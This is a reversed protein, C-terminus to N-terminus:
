PIMGFSWFITFSPSTGALTWKARWFNDTVGGGITTEQWDSGRVTRSPHTLRTTPTTFGSNDDSEIVGVITPTGATVPSLVHLASYIWKNAASGMNIGTSNGTVTVTGRRMLQGRVLPANSARADINAAIIAGVEGSMPNYSGRVGRSFHVRDGEVEGILAVSMVQGVAGIQQFQELDTTGDNNWFMSGNLEVTKLGPRFSRTSGNAVPRFTTDDLMEAGYTLAVSNSDASIDLAGFLLKCNLLVSGGAM